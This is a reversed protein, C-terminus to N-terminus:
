DAPGGGYGIENGDPDRFVAKRVGNAYTERDAPEIGRGAAGALVADLDDVFLTVMAHGAHAPRHEVHVFRDPAIEWVAEVDNPFFSPPAGFLREYWVLALALDTVPVGAFLSVSM